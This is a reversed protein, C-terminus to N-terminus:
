PLLHVFFAPLTLLLGESSVAMLVAVPALPLHMKWRPHVNCLCRQIVLGCLGGTENVAINHQLQSYHMKVWAEACPKLSSAFLVSSTLIQQLDM